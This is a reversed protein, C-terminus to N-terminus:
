GSDGPLAISGDPGRAVLGDTVLAALARAQQGSDHWAADLQAAPIPGAAARLVALLRGRCERDSGAYGPTARRAAPPPSGAQRWACLGAVPCAACSPRAAKCVLAGLEMVAVSWRAARAGDAPLLSQALRREAASTAAPPLAAGTV